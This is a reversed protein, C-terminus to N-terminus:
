VLSNFNDSTLKKNLEDYADLYMITYVSDTLYPVLQDGIKQTNDNGKGMILILTKPDSNLIASKIALRRDYICKYECDKSIHKIIDSNISDINETGPDDATLYILKSYKSAIKGLDKRRNIAKNGVSGFVSVISYDPFEKRVSDFLKQFSLKNHAYDVITVIDNNSSHYLEMRGSSKALRLGNFISNYPINFYTCISIAALANEVNFIGPMSLEFYKELSNHKVYFTTIDNSKKINYATFDAPKDIAFTIINRNYISAKNLIATTNDSNLNIFAANCQKFIDLKSNLYDDFNCHEIPSIHDESINLFLGADFQVKFVRHYKLAQSSVEMTLYDVNSSKANHFIKHLDPSEPTTLKSPTTNVGDFTDISSIIASANKNKYKLFDDLISKIYYATTTKGKTGTIGILKFNKYANNYFENSIIAMAVRIDSVIIFNSNFNIDYFKTQSIYAIIGNKIATMLYEQKFNVGKCIFLTNKSIEFSNYSINEVNNDHLINYSSLIRHKNLLQVYHM